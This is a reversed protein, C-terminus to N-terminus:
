YQTSFNGLRSMQVLGEANGRDDNVVDLAHSAFSNTLRYWQKPDFTEETSPEIAKGTINLKMSPSSSPIKSISVLTDQGSCAKSNPNSTANFTTNNALGPYPDGPDGLNFKLENLGDAQVLRVKPHVENTNGRMARDIHWILLSDGRLSADFSSRQRNEILFYEKSNNDGNTWLRYAKGGSKVDELVIEHNETENVVDIWGQKAKCDTPISSFIGLPLFTPCVRQHTSRDIVGEVGVAMPYRAVAGLVRPPAMGTM